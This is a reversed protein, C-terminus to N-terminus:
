KPNNRSQIRLHQQIESKDVQELASTNSGSVQTSTSERKPSKVVIESNNEEEESEEADPLTAIFNSGIKLRNRRKRITRDVFKMQTSTGVQPDGRFRVCSVCAPNGFLLRKRNNKLYLLSCQHAALVDAGILVELPLNPVVGFEHWLLTTGVSVPLVAFGKLELAEGNGGIVLVDGPDRIPPQYPLKLYVAEDILNRVSGSDALIWVPLTQVSGLVFFLQMRPTGPTSEESMAPMAPDCVQVPSEFSREPEYLVATGNKNFTSNSEAPATPRTSSPKTEIKVEM